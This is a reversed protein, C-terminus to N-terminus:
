STNIRGSTSKTGDLALNNLAHPHRRYSKCLASGNAHERERKREKQRKKIKRWDGETIKGMM